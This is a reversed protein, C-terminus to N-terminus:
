NTQSKHHQKIEDFSLDVVPYESYNKLDYHWWESELSMFGYKEMIEKLMKRNNIQEESLNM